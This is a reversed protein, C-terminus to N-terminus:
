PRLPVDCVASRAGGSPAATWCDAAGSCRRRLATIAQELGAASLRTVHPPATASESDVIEITGRAAAAEFFEYSAYTYWLHYLTNSEIAEMKFPSGSVSLTTRHDGAVLRIARGAIAEHSGLSRFYGVKARDLGGCELRILSTSMEKRDGGKADVFYKMTWLMQPMLEMARWRAEQFERTDIGFRVIEDRSLYYMKENPVKSILDFLAVDIKMEQVYRRFQVDYEALKARQFSAFKGDPITIKRGDARVLRASHVGVRAGPPVQRVKAGILSFVCASTCIAVNRLDSTLAEGSQKLARCAEESVGICRAPITQSVGATMERVRLLRGIEMATTGIGGPSHFFIPRKRKGLRNLFVRLRQAAGVDIRGEAAIWESCGPGCADDEGKALYYMMPAGLVTSKSKAASRAPEAAASGALAILIAAPLAARFRM